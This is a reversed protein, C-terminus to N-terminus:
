KRKQGVWRFEVRGTDDVVEWYAFGSRIAQVQFNKVANNIEAQHRLSENVANQRVVYTVLMDKSNDEFPFGVCGASLMLILIACLIKM